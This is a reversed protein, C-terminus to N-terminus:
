IISQKKRMPSIYTTKKQPSSTPTSHPDDFITWGRVRDDGPLSGLSDGEEEADADDDDDDDDEDATRDNAKHVQHQNIRRLPSSSSNHFMSDMSPGYQM